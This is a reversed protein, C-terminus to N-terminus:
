SGETADRVDIQIPWLKGDPSEEEARQIARNIAEVVEGDQPDVALAMGIVAGNKTITVQINMPDRYVSM